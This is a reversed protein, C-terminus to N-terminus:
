VLHHRRRERERQHAEKEKVNIVTAHLLDAKLFMKWSRQRQKRPKSLKRYTHIVRLVTEGNNLKMIKM